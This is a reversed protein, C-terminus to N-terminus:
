PRKEQAENSINIVVKGRAKGSESYDHAERIEDLSFQKDLIPRIDGKEVMTSITKLDEGSPFVFAFTSFKRFGFMRGIPFLLSSMFNGANVINSIFVGNETLLHRCESFSTTVAVDYICDFQRQLDTINEEKYNIVSDAGLSTVLERDRESCVATINAGWAKALQVAFVGVGGAAGNILISKGPQIQGKQLLAQYATLCALPIAAAEEYSLNDPKKALTEERTVAFEAYAGSQTFKTWSLSPNPDIMGYVADGVQFQTANRGREVVVGAIDNGLIMPFKKGRVGKLDGQRTLFDIRNLGAAYVRILVQNDEIKPSPHNNVVTLMDSSGFQNIIAARM